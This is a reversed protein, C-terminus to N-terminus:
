PREAVLARAERLLRDWQMAPGPDTKNEQVHFHGVIGDFALLREKPLTVTEVNGADDRPVELAIRPFVRHLAACLHALARYQEPTFDFQWYTKGRIPGSILENRDPRAVFGPTRLGTEGLFQPFKMFWGREDQTYWRMMDANRPQPWCGPHAIEVGISGGNAITAHQAHEQLDLTQYLTGDTDLLFHVSLFRKDQLIEFCRRSTGADDFHLVFLHVVRQLDELRWGSQAVRAAIEDPLDSRVKRYRLKGDPQPEVTFRKETRYADYGGPDTWLVVPTGTRFSRGAAVIEDFHRPESAKTSREFLLLLLMLAGGLAALQQGRSWRRVRPAPAGVDRPQPDAPPPLATM